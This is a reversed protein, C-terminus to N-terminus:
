EASLIVAMRVRAAMWLSDELTLRRDLQHALVSAGAVGHNSAEVTGKWTLWPTFGAGACASDLSPNMLLVNRVLSILTLSASFRARGGFVKRFSPLGRMLAQNLTAM